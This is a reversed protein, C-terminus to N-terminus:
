YFRSETLYLPDDRDWTKLFKFVVWHKLNLTPINACPPRKFIPYSSLCYTQSQYSHLYPIMIITFM